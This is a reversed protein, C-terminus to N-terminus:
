VIVNEIKYKDVLVITRIVNTLEYNLTQAYRLMRLMNALKHLLMRMFNRVKYLSIKMVNTLEYYM